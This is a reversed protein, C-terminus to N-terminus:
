RKRDAAVSAIQEIATLPTPVYSFCAYSHLAIPSVQPSDILPLLLQMQTSFWITEQSRMWYLPVRGFPDRGLRLQGAEVQAWADSPLDTPGFRGCANLTVTDGALVSESAIAWESLKGQRIGYDPVLRSLTKTLDIQGWYGVFHSPKGIAGM